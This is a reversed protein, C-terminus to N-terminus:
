VKIFIRKRYLLAAIGLWLCVYALAMALSSPGCYYQEQPFFPVREIEASAPLSGRSVIIRETQAGACGLPGFLVLGSLLVVSLRDKLRM